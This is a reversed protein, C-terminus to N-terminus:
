RFRKRGDDKLDIKGLVKLNNDSTLKKKPLSNAYRHLDEVSSINRNIRDVFDAFEGLLKMEYHTPRSNVRTVSDAEYENDIGGRHNKCRLHYLDSFSNKLQVFEEYESNKMKAGYGVLYFIANYKDKASLNSLTGSASEAMKSPLFLLKALPYEKEKYPREYSKGDTYAHYTVLKSYIDNLKPGRALTNVICEYQQYLSLCFEEVNGRRRWHEMKVYDAILQPVISPIAFDAYFSQADGLAIRELCYEYIEDIRKDEPISVPVSSQFRQKLPEIFDEKNAPDSALKDIFDLLASLQEKKTAM